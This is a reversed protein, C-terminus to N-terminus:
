LVLTFHKDINLLAFLYISIYCTSGTNRLNFMLKNDSLSSIDKVEYFSTDRRSQFSIAITMM